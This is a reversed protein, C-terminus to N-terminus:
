IKVERNTKLFFTKGSGVLKEALNIYGGGIPSRDLIRFPIGMAGSIAVEVSQYFSM